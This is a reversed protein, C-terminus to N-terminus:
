PRSRYLTISVVWPPFNYKEICKVLYIHDVSDFAKKVDIWASKLGHAKSIALDLLAQEKAGQVMRVTGLQNEALLERNEVIAQMVKTVCKTTLKYLNSMCTIPRFDSGKTPTGKPILYTIGKYFWSKEAQNELFIKRTM